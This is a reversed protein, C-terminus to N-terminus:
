FAADSVVYMAPPLGISVIACSFCSPAGTAERRYRATLADSTGSWIVSIRTCAAM